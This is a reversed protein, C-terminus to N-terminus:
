VITFDMDLFSKKGELTTCNDEKESLRFTRRSEEFPASCHLHNGTDSESLGDENELLTDRRKRKRHRRKCYLVLLSGIVLSTLAAAIITVLM